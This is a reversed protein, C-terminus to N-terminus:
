EVIAPLVCLGGPKAVQAQILAIRAPRGATGHVFQLRKPVLQAGALVEFAHVLLDAPYVLCVVGRRGLQRRAAHVFPELAGHRATSRANGAPLTGGLFYPPNMVVLAANGEPLASVDATAATYQAHLDNRAANRSALQALDPDREVGTMHRVTGMRLLLLGVVGVGAGLDCAVSCRRTSAFQALHVSDQNFRYGSVPQELLLAGDLLSDVTTQV